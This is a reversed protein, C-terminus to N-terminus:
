EGAGKAGRGIAQAAVAHPAGYNVNASLLFAEFRGNFQGFDDKLNRIDAGMASLESRFGRHEARVEGTMESIQKEARHATDGVGEIRGRVREVDLWIKQRDEVSNHNFVKLEAVAANLSAVAALTSATESGARRGGTWLDLLRPLLASLLFGGILILLRIDESM